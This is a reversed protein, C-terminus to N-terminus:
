KGDDDEKLQNLKKLYDLDKIMQLINASLGILMKLFDADKTGSINLSVPEEKSFDITCILTLTPDLIEIKTTEGLMTQIRPNFCNDLLYDIFHRKIKENSELGLEKLENEINEQKKTYKKLTSDVEKKTYLGSLVPKKQSYNSIDDEFPMISSNKEKSITQYDNSGYKYAFVLKILENIKNQGLNDLMFSFNDFENKRFDYLITSNSYLDVFTFYVPKNDDNKVLEIHSDVAKLGEELEKVTIKKYQEIAEKFFCIEKISLCSSLAENDFQDTKFSYLVYETGLNDKFSIKTPQDDPDFYILLHLHHRRLNNKLEEIRKEEM